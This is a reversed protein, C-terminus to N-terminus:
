RVSGTRAWLTRFARVAARAWTLLLTGKKSPRSTCTATSQRATGVRGGSGALVTNDDAGVTVVRGNIKGYGAVKGDAPTNDEMGPIDSRNLQGIEYFSGQDLLKDIRERATFRGRERHRAIKEAGGLDLTRLKREQLEGSDERSPM